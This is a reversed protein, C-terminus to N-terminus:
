VVSKRDRRDPPSPFTLLGHTWQQGLYQYKHELKPSCRLNASEKTQQLLWQSDDLCLPRLCAHLQVPRNPRPLPAEPVESPLAPGGALRLHQIRM